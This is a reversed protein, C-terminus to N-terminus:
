PKIIQITPLIEEKYAKRFEEVRGKAKLSLPKHEGDLYTNLLDHWQTFNTQMTTLNGGKAVRERWRTPWEKKFKDCLEMVVGELDEVVETVVKHSNHSTTPQAPQPSATPTTAVPTGRKEGVPPPPTAPTNTSRNRIAEFGIPASGASKQALSFDTTAVSDVSEEVLGKNQDASIKVFLGLTVLLLATLGELIGGYINIQQSGQAIIGGKAALINEHEEQAKALETARQAVLKAKLDSNKEMLRLGETTPKGKWTSKKAAAIAKEAEAIQGDLTAISPPPAFRNGELMETTRQSGSVSGINRSSIGVSLYFAYGVIAMLLLTVFFKPWSQWAGGSFFLLTLRWGLYVKCTEILLFWVISGVFGVINNQFVAKFISYHYWAGGSLTIGIVIALAVKVPLILNDFIQDPNDIIAVDMMRRERDSQRQWWRSTQKFINDSNNSM